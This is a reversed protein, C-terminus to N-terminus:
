QDLKDKIQRAVKDLEEEARSKLKGSLAGLTLTAETDKEIIGSITVPRFYFSLILGLMLLASGIWVVSVGPDKKVQLGTYGALGDFTLKFTTEITDTQGKNMQGMKVPQPSNGKYVQYLIVPQNPDPKIASVIIFLDTGPVQYYNGGQNQLVIPIKQGKIEVTFKGGQTFNAQYFTIGQYTFPHNVSLTQRALEKGSEMISLDTYWNDREGNALMRDEVSNIKINFNDTVTGRNLEIDHISLSDGVGASFYGKFGTMSGVLAGLVLVIFSIHTLFSGWNGWRHKQAVFSWHDEQEEATLRYGELKFLDFTVQQLQNAKGTVKTQIKQPLTSLASPLKPKYTQNYIGGFRQISCVMLNVCLLGLILRFGVSSYVHTFGMMKFIESASQAKQPDMSEQPILTGIGSVLAIVGLLVLGTKMSSFVNWVKDVMGEAQGSM